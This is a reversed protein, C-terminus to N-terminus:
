GAYGQGGDETAAPNGTNGTDLNASPPPDALWAANLPLQQRVAAVDLGLLDCVNAFAFPWERSDDLLWTRARLFEERERRRLGNPDQTVVRVADELVAVVLRMEPSRMIISRRVTQSPLIALPELLSHVYRRSM